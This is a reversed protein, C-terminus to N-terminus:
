RREGGIKTANSKTHSQGKIVLPETRVSSAVTRSSITMLVLDLEGPQSLRGSAHVDVVRGLVDAGKPYLERGNVMIADELTARFTDNVQAEESSLKDIMRIRVVTGSPIELSNQAAANVSTYLLLFLVIRLMASRKMFIRMKVIKVSGGLM